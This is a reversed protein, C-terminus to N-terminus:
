KKNIKYFNDKIVMSKFDNEEINIEINESKVDISKM